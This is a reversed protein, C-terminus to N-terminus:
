EALFPLSRSDVGTVELVPSVPVRGNVALYRIGESVPSYESELTLGPREYRTRRLYTWRSHGCTFMEERITPAAFEARFAAFDGVETRDRIEAVFGNGTTLFDRASFDRAPGEYNYFSVVVYDNELTARVAAPRGHSTLLLPHFAMCVPGDKVFVPCPEVSEGQLDALRRDGFWLEEIPASIVPFLLSLRLRSVGQRAYLKPKYLLMATNRHGLGLKRGQDWLLGGDTVSDPQKDNVLYRAYVTAVDGTQRVPRKRYLLHFSDTQVGNHFEHSAVGLAYNETMWTSIAGGGAQYEYTNDDTALDKREVSKPYDDASSSFETTARFQTPYKKNLMAEVLDEPCHYESTAFWPFSPQFGAMRKGFFREPEGAPFITASPDVPMRDGLLLYYIYRAQWTVGLSDLTYARSYPGALQGTGPHYHGLLDVWVRHECALATQRTEEDGALNAIEALVHAHIPTYTPSAYESDVGRRRFMAVLQQLRAKGQEVLEPRGAMAGGMLLTFTSLCPFNDNVGVFDMDGATFEPLVGVVYDRLRKSAAPELRSDHYRLIQLAVTPAFHCMVTDSGLIIRNALRVTEPRGCGLFGLAIWLRERLGGWEPPSIWGGEADFRTLNHDAFLAFIRARRIAQGPLDYFSSM